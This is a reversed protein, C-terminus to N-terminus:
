WGLCNAEETVPTLLVLVECVFNDVPHQCIHVTTIAIKVEPLSTKYDVPNRIHPPGLCPSKMSECFVETGLVFFGFSMCGIIKGGLHKFFM